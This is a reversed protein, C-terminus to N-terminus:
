SAVAQAPEVNETSQGNVQAQARPEIVRM